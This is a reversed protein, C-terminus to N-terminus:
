AVELYSELSFALDYVSLIHTRAKIGMERFREPHTEQLRVLGTKETLIGVFSRAYTVDKSRAFDSAIKYLAFALSKYDNHRGDPAVQKAKLCELM